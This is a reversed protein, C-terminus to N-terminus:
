RRCNKQAALTMAGTIGSLDGLDPPVIYETLDGSIAKVQIYGGLLQATQERIKEILGPTKIVGGGFIIREPMHTLIITLTLHSLYGAIIEVPEAGLASLPAGWRDIIAPGCALGELCDDHFPCRGKFPDRTLDRPPRIHGMEYHGVGSLPEGSKVVGVGIGTGVTVYALSQLASGAGHTYEGLAAGNVDTDVILRAGLPALHEPFSAGSWDPKPTKLVSGYSPSARDINVPGFSAVGIVEVCAHDDNVSKFFRKVQDFTEEPSTTPFTETAILADPAYGAACVFKTGGAEIAGLLPKNPQDM